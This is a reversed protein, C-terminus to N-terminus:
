TRVTRRLRLSRVVDAAPVGERPGIPEKQDTTTFHAFLREHRLVGGTCQGIRPVLRRRAFRGACVGHQDCGESSFHRALSDNPRHSTTLRQTLNGHDVFISLPINSGIKHIVPFSHVM